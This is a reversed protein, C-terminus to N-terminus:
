PNHKPNTMSDLLSKIKQMVLNANDIDDDSPLNFPAGFRVKIMPRKLRPIPFGKGIPWVIDSGTIAVPVITAGTARAIRSIGPRGQGVGEPRENPPVLRGEPMIAVAYGAELKKIAQLEAEERTSRSAAICGNKRLWTGM